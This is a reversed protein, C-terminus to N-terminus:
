RRVARHRWLRAGDQMDADVPVGQPSLTDVDPLTNHVVWQLNVWHAADGELSEPTPPDDKYPERMQGHAACAMLTALMSPAWRAHLGSM